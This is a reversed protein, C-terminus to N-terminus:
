YAYPIYPDIFSLDDAFRIDFWCLGNDLFGYDKESLILLLRYTQLQARNFENVQFGTKRHDHHTINMEFESSTLIMVTQYM